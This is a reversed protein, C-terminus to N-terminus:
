AASRKKNLYLETVYEIEDLDGRFSDIWMSLQDMNTVNEKLTLYTDSDKEIGCINETWLMFNEISDEWEDLLWDYETMLM